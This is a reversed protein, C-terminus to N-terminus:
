RCMRSKMCILNVTNGSIYDAILRDIKGFMKNCPNYFLNTEQMGACHQVFADYLQHPTRTNGMDMEVKLWAFRCAVCDIVDMNSRVRNPRKIKNIKDVKARKGGEKRVSLETIRNQEIDRLLRKRNGSLQQVQGVINRSFDTVPAGRGGLKETNVTARTVYDDLTSPRGLDNFDDAKKVRIPDVNKMPPLAQAQAQAHAGADVAGFTKEAIAALSQADSAGELMSDLSEDAELAKIANFGAVHKESLLKAAEIDKDIEASAVAASRQARHQAILQEPSGPDQVELAALVGTEITDARGLDPSGSGAAGAAAIAAFIVALVLPISRRYMM